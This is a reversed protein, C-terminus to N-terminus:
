AFCACIRVHNTKGKVIDVFGQGVFIHLKVIHVVIKDTCTEFFHSYVAYVSDRYFLLDMYQCCIEARQCCNQHRIKSTLVCWVSSTAQASRLALSSGRVGCLIRPESGKPTLFFFFWDKLQNKKKGSRSVPSSGAAEVKALDREVLQAVRAYQRKEQCM